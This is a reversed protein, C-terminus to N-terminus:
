QSVENQSVDDGAESVQQNQEVDLYAWPPLSNGKDDTVGSGGNIVVNFMPMAKGEADQPSMPAMFYRGLEGALKGWERLATARIEATVAGPRGGAMWIAVGEPGLQVWQMVAAQPLVGRRLLWERLAVTAKNSAGPPRGVGRAVRESAAAIEGGADAVPLGFLEAQDGDAAAREALIQSGAARAADGAIKPETAM